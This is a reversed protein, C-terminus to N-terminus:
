SADEGAAGVPQASGLAEASGERFGAIDATGGVVYNMIFMKDEIDVLDVYFKGEEYVVTGDEEAEPRPSLKPQNVVHLVIKDVMELMEDMKATDGLLKKADVRQRGEANPITETVVIASLTDMSDLIGAKLLGRIGVRKVQVKAGSPTDLDKLFSAGGWGAGYNSAPQSQNKKPM